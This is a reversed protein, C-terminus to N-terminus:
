YEEDSLNNSQDDTRSQVSPRPNWKFLVPARIKSGCEFLSSAISNWGQTGLKPRKLVDSITSPAGEERRLVVENINVDYHTYTM